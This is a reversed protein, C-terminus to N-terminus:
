VRLSEKKIAVDFALLVGEKGAGDNWENLFQVADFYGVGEPEPMPWILRVVDYLERLVCTIFTSHSGCAKKIAGVASWAHAGPSTAEVSHGDAGQADRETCWGAVVLGKAAVLIDHVVVHEAQVPKEKDFQKRLDLLQQACARSSIELLKLREEHDKLKVLRINTLEGNIYKLLETRLEEYEKSYM